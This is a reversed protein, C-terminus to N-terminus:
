VDIHGVLPLPDLFGWFIPGFEWLRHIWNIEDLIVGFINLGVKKAIIYKTIFNVQRLDYNEARLQTNEGILVKREELIADLDTKLSENEATVVELACLKSKLSKIESDFGVPEGAGGTSDKLKDSFFNRFTQNIYNSLQHTITFFM